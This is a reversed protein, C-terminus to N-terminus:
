HAVVREGGFAHGLTVGVLHGILDAVRDEVGDEGLIRITTHRALRQEGGPQADDGTLDGGIGVDVNRLQGALDDVADTVVVRQVAEVAVRAAHDHRDVLLTAVDGLADVLAFFQATAPLPSSMM